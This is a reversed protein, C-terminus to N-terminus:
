PRRDSTVGTMERDDSEARRQDQSGVRWGGGSFHGGTERGSRDATFRENVHSMRAPAANPQKPDAPRPQYELGFQVRIAGDKLVTPTADININVPQAGGFDTPVQTGGTRISGAFRDAIIMSVTKRSPEGPTGEDSISIDLKINVMQGTPEPAEIM